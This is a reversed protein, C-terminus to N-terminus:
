IEWLLTRQLSKYLIKDLTDYEVITNPPASSIETVNVPV